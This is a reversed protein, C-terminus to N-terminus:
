SCRHGLLLRLATLHRSKQRSRDVGKYADHMRFHTEFSCETLSLATDSKTLLYKM